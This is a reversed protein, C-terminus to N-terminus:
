VSSEIEDAAKIRHDIFDYVQQMEEVYNRDIEFYKVGHKLCNTRFEDHAQIHEGIMRDEPYLRTEIVNRYKVIDSFHEQIYGPSFGIFVSIIDDPYKQEIEKVYEPLLYCGEMILNQNNEINTMIMAKVMPWLKEGIVEDPDLPTFGCNNYGRYLGMKLHDISLYPIQYKELLQQSMYTKGTCSNGSILIIM